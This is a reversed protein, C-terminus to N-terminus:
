GNSDGNGTSSRDLADLDRDQAMYARVKRQKAQIVEDMHVGFWPNRSEGRIMEVLAYLDQLEFNIREANTFAQDAQRQNMGFLQAKSCRQAVENCEEGLRCLLAQIRNM